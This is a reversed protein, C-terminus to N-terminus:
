ELDSGLIRRVLDDLKSIDAQTKRKLDINTEEIFRREYINRLKGLNTIIEDKM